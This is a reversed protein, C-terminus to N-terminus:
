RPRAAWDPDDGCVPVGDADRLMHAGTGDSRMIWLASLDCARHNSRTFMIRTGDPSYAPRTARTLLRRYGHGDRGIVRIGQNYQFAINRGDPSWDLEAFSANRRRLLRRQGSGDTRMVWLESFFVGRVVVGRNFAIVSGDPSWAPGAGLHTLVRTRGRRYVLIGYNNSRRLRRPCREEIESYYGCPHDRVFVITRGDPSWSPTHDRGRIGRGTLVRRRHGDTSVVEIRTAADPGAGTFVLRRGGPSFEPQVGGRVVVRRGSGDPAATVIGTYIGTYIESEFAIRGNRGPFAAEGPVVFGMALAIGAAMHGSVPGLGLRRM